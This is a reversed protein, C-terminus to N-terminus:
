FHFQKYALVAIMGITIGATSALAMSALGRVWVRVSGRADPITAIVPLGFEDRLEGQDNFSTDTLSIVFPIGLAAVLSILIGATAIALRNPSAPTRPIAPTEILGVRQGQQHRVVDQQMEAALEMSLLDHYEKMAADYDATLSSLEQAHTPTDDIRRQCAVIKDQLARRRAATNADGDVGDHVGSGSGDHGSGAVIKELQAIEAQTDVVDPYHDSYDARLGALKMRLEKLKVSPSDAASAGGNTLPEDLAKLQDELRDLESVNEAIEEPLSGSYRKKLQNIREQQHALKKEQRGAQEKLFSATVEAREMRSKLSESIFLDALDYTVKYALAPDVSEFSIKLETSNQARRQQQIDEYDVPNGPVVLAIQRRLQAVRSRVEPRYDLSSSRQYLHYKDILRELHDNSFALQTLADLHNALENESSGPSNAVSLFQPAVQPWEILVLASSRYTSPLLMLLCISIAAGACLTAIVHFRHRYLVDVIPSLSIPKRDAM